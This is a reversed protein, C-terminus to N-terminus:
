SFQFICMNEELYPFQTIFIFSLVSVSPLKDNSKSLHVGGIEVINPLYATPNDFSFHGNVLFLAANKQMEFLSPAPQPVNPIYKNVLKENEGLFWFRWWFYEYVAFYANRMRGWFSTPDRLDLFESVTTALQLPNRSAINHRMCNGYTTVLVLPTNYKHALIYFAEQFFQESIVLDFKNDEHLLKQVQSSNLAVETFGKGGAWLIVEHFKEAPIQVM